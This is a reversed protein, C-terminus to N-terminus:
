RTLLHEEILARLEEGDIAGTRVHVVRGQADVLATSPLNSAKLEGLLSGDEGLGILYTVGTREVMDRAAAEDPETTNLGVFTVRGALDQSVQEFEPMEALCPACFSAWFNLVLPTGALDGLRLTTGDLGVYTRDSVDIAADTTADGDVLWGILFVALLSAVCVGFLFRLARRRRQEPVAGLPEEVPVTPLSV